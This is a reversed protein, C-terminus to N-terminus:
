LLVFAPSGNAHHDVLKRSSAHQRIGCQGEDYMSNDVVIVCVSWFAYGFLYAQEPESWAVVFAHPRSPEVVGFGQMNIM